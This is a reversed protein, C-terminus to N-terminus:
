LEFIGVLIHMLIWSSFVSKFHFTRRVGLSFMPPSPESRQKPFNSYFIRFNRHFLFRNVQITRNRKVIRQLCSQNPIPVTSLHSPPNLCHYHYVHWCVEAMLMLEDKVTSGRESISQFFEDWDHISAWFCNEESIQRVFESWIKRSNSFFLFTASSTKIPRNRRHARVFCLAWRQRTSWRQNRENNVTPKTEHRCDFAEEGTMFGWAIRLNGATIWRIFAVKRLTFRWSGSRHNYSFDGHCRFRNM